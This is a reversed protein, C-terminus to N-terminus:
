CFGLVSFPLPCLNGDWGSVISAPFPFLRRGHLRVISMLLVGPLGQTWSYALVFHVGYNKHGKQNPKPKKTKNQKTKTKTKRKKWTQRNIQKTKLKLLFSFSCSTTHPSLYSPDPLLQLLPFFMSYWFMLCKKLTFFTESRTQCVRMNYILFM